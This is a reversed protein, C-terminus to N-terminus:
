LHLSELVRGAAANRDRLDAVSTREMLHVSQEAMGRWVEHLVCPHEDSCADSWFVCHRFLQPGEVAEVVMRLSIEAPPAALAYGKARGRHAVLVGGRALRQFVKALFPQSAGTAAAVGAVSRVAGEPLEALALLGTLAYQSESSLKVGIGGGPM